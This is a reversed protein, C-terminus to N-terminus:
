VILSQVIQDGEVSLPEVGQKRCEQLWQVEFSRAEDYGSFGTVCSEHGGPIWIDWLQTDENFLIESARTIKQRGLFGLSFKDFHMGQAGGVQNIDIVIEKDM